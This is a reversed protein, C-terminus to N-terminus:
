ISYNYHLTKTKELDYNDAKTYLTDENLYHLLHAKIRLTTRLKLVENIKNMLKNVYTM